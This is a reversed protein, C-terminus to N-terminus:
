SVAAPKVARVTIVVDYAPDHHDLEERRLERDSLGYLFATAALVNGHSRIESREAGFAEEFLRRASNTTFSWFWTSQWDADGTHTIGPFTTLLVGGPKLIRHLTRLAAPVDYILQLTQTLIVCDFTDSPIHEASTLDAVITAEPNGETVHLVDSRAVRDGGFQRTYTAEGVELVRGHVDACNRELFNEIYYRDLARGRERGWMRSLPTVRRLSGFRVWGVPPVFGSGLRWSHVVSRLTSPLFLRQIRSLPNM